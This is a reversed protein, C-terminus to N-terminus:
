LVISMLCDQLLNHARTKNCHICTNVHHAHPTLMMLAVVPASGITPSSLWCPLCLDKWAFTKQAGEEEGSEQGGEESSADDVDSAEEQNEEDGSSQDDLSLESDLGLWSARPMAIGDDSIRNGELSVKELSKCLPLVSALREAGEVGIRNNSLHLEALSACQGLVETLSRAGADHIGPIGPSEELCCPWHPASGCCERWARLGKSSEARDTFLVAGPGAGPESDRRAGESGISNCELNLM